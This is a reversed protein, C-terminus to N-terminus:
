DPLAVIVIPRGRLHTLFLVRQLDGKLKLSQILSEPELPSGRKKVTVQGIGHERLYRRLGKLQFPFWDAVQWGRAFPTEIRGAATLYAIDPDLQAAGLQHGLSRVLGARLVAPDPEYIYGLPESLPLPSEDGAVLTHCGTLAQGGPLLTARRACTKFPGLWLVAEKLEGALSIFEVEGGYQEVQRLDLGPSLKVAIAHTKELWSEIVSLPPQYDEVHRLRREGARRAPDFFIATDRSPKLPLPQTLDAQLWNAREGLGLADLNLRAMELRLGDLDVGIVQSIEALALSDGGVSCGLDLIREYGQFRASRYSSVAYSSAQELAPRTFYLKGAFPFKAQAALRLIAIELAARALEAPHQRSLVQFHKLFDEERPALAQAAQLLAQGAPTQLQRLTQRNM